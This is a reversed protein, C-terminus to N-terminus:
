RWAPRESRIGTPRTQMRALVPSAKAVADVRRQTMHGVDAMAAREATTTPPTNM